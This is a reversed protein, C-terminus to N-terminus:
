PGSSTTCRVGPEGHSAPVAWAFRHLLHTFAEFQQDGEWGGIQEWEARFSPWVEPAPQTQVRQQGPLLKFRGGVAAALLPVPDNRPM